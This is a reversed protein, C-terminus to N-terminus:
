TSLFIYDLASIRTHSGTRHNDATNVIWSLLLLHKADCEAAILLGDDYAPAPRCCCLIYVFMFLCSLRQSRLNIMQDM